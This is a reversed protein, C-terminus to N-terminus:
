AWVRTKYSCGHSYNCNMHAVQSYMLSCKFDFEESQVERTALMIRTTFGVWKVKMVITMDLM